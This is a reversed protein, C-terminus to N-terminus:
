AHRVAKRPPGGDPAAKPRSKGVDAIPTGDALNPRATDPDVGDLITLLHDPHALPEPSDSAPWGLKDLDARSLNLAAQRALAETALNTAIPAGWSSNQPPRVYCSFGM